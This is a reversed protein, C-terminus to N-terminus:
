NEQCAGRALREGLTEPIVSEWQGGERSSNLAGTASYSATLVTRLQQLGCNMEYRQVVYPGDERAFEVQKTWLKISNSDKNDFTRLDLYLHRRPSNEVGVERWREYTDSYKPFGNVARQFEASAMSWDNKKLYADARM